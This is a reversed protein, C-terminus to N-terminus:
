ADAGVADDRVAEGDRGAGDGNALGSGYEYRFRAGEAAASGVGSVHCITAFLTSCDRISLAELPVYKSLLGGAEDAADGPLFAGAEIVPRSQKVLQVVAVGDSVVPAGTDPGGGPLAGLGAAILEPDVKCCLVVVPEGDEFKLDELTVEASTPPLKIKRM